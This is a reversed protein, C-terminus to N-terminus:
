FQISLVRILIGFCVSLVYLLCLILLNEQRSKNTKFLVLLGIGSGSLLGAILPGPGIAGILYLQTIVVSGGCNPVLGILACLVEGAVPRNLVFSALKEAGIQSIVLNLLLTIVFLYFVVEGTRFLAEKLITSNKHHEHDDSLHRKFHDGSVARGRKRILLDIVFGCLVAIVLKCILILVTTKVPVRQSVLIPLMEDSTSMYVSFLTGLTIVRHAYLESSMASFGCQPVLGLLGGMLPGVRRSKIIRETSKDGAKSELFELLLYTAFLFPLIRLTDLFADWLADAFLHLM